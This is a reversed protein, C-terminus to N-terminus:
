RSSTIKLAAILQESTGGQMLPIDTASNQRYLASVNFVPQWFRNALGTTGAASSTTIVQEPAPIHVPYPDREQAHPQDVPTVVPTVVVTACIVCIRAAKRAVDACRMVTDVVKKCRPCYHCMM